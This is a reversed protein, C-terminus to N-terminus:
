YYFIEPTLSPTQPPLNPALFSMYSLIDADKPMQCTLRAKRRLARAM